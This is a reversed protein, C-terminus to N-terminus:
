VKGAEVLVLKDFSGVACVDGVDDIDENLSLDLSSADGTASVAVGTDTDEFGDVVDLSIRSAAAERAVAM